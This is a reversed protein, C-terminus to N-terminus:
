SSETRTWDDELAHIIQEALNEFAEARATSLSQGHVTSYPERNHFTRRTRLGTKRDEVIVEVDVVVSSETVNTPGRDALVSEDFSRIRGHLVIDAAAADAVLRLGSRAHIEAALIRTLEVEIARRFTDNDFVPVAVTRAHSPDLPGARYGCGATALALASICLAAARCAGSRRTSGSPEPTRSM